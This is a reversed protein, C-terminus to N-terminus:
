SKAPWLDKKIHVNLGLNAPLDWSTPPPPVRMSSPSIFSGRWQGENEVNEKGM